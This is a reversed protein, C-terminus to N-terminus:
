NVTFNQCSFASMAKKKIMLELMSPQDMFDEQQSLLWAMCCNQSEFPCVPSCKAKMGSVDFGCEELCDKLGKAEGQPSIM